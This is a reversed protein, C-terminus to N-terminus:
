TSPPFALRLPTPAPAPQSEDLNMVKKYAEWALADSPDLPMENQDSYFGTPGFRPAGVRM